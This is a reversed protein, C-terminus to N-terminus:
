GTLAPLDIYVIRERPVNGLYCWWEVHSPHASNFRLLDRLSGGAMAALRPGLTTWQYLPTEAVSLEVAVVATADPNEDRALQWDDSTTLWVAAVQGEVIGDFAGPRAILGLERIGDVSERKTYHYFRM